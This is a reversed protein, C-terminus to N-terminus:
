DTLMCMETLYVSTVSVVWHSGDMCSCAVLTQNTDISLVPASMNHHWLESGDAASFLHLENDAGGSVIGDPVGGGFVVFGTSICNKGGSARDVQLQQKACYRGDGEDLLEQWYDDTIGGVASAPNSANSHNIANGSDSTSNKSVNATTTTKQQGVAKLAALERNLRQVESALLDCEEELEQRRCRERLVDVRLTAIEEDREDRTSQSDAM